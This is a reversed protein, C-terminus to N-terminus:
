SIEDSLIAELYQEYEPPIGIDYNKYYHLFDIPFIFEGDDYLGGNGLEVGTFMDTVYLSTYAASLTEIHAIVAEKPLINRFSRYTEFDETCYSKGYAMGKFFGFAKIGNQAKM